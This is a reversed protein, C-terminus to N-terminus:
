KFDKYITFVENVDGFYKLNGRDLLLAKNCFNRITEENHSALVLIKSREIFENLRKSAKALFSADGTGIVEDMLLIDADMSSVTAFILRTMMGSSYIRVPMDIFKGLETFDIIEPMKKNIEDRKMGLLLGRSIINEVGTAEPEIGISLNLTSVVNNSIVINGSTPQYIGALIKLLTSKGAGNHGVLGLRDGDNLSFSINQLACVEPMDGPTIFGGTAASLVRNKLSRGAMGVLPYNLCINNLDVRKM